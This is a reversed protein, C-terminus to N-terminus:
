NITWECQALPAPVLAPVDENMGPSLAIVAQVSISSGDLELVIEQPSFVAMQQRGGATQAFIPRLPAGGLELAKRGSREPIVIVPLQTLYDRLTNGSDIMADFAARKGRYTCIIRARKVNREARGTRSACLGIAIAAIGGLAYAAALSGTAGWLSLVMGGALGAACLLLLADGLLSRSARGRAIRMMLMATPLWVLLAQMRSLGSAARAIAAGAAAGLLVRVPNFRGGGLRVALALMLANM